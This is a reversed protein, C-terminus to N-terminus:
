KSSLILVSFIPNHAPLLCPPHAKPHELDMLRYKYSPCAFKIVVLIRPRVAGRPHTAASVSFSPIPAPPLHPRPSLRFRATLQAIQSGGVGGIRCPGGQGTWPKGLSGGFLSFLEAQCECLSM